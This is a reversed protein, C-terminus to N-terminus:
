IHVCVQRMLASESFRDLYQSIPAAAANRLDKM